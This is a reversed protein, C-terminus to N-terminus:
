HEQEEVNYRGSEEASVSRAIITAAEMRQPCRVSCRAM